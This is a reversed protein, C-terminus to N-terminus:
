GASVARSLRDRVALWDPTEPVAEILIVDARRADLERLNAYLGQAYDAATDGGRRWSEAGSAGPEASRALVIVRKGVARLAALRALLHPPIVLEASTHPAYHRAVSGPVRTAALATAVERALVRGAVAAIQAASVSGPRLVVPAGDEFGVITSEIGLSCAGGDLVMAASAGLEERVHSAQTPSVQGYRNASPAALAAGFEALLARAVAHAPSRLGVTDQGGTVLDSALESRPLVLTLPGPWFAAALARAAPTVERAWRDLQTADQVHVIVPHTAPRGKAAFIARVAKDNSADGGLGYVTETPFAVLKGERLLQAARAIDVPSSHLSDTV